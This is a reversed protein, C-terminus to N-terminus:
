RDEELQSRLKIPGELQLVYIHRSRGVPISGLVQRGLDEPNKQFPWRKKRVLLIQNPNGSLYESLDQLEKIAIVRRGTYFSFSGIESEGFRYATPTEDPDILSAVKLMGSRHSGVAEAAPVYLIAIQIILFCPAAWFAPLGLGGPRDLLRKILLFGAVAVLSGTILIFWPSPSDVYELLDAVMMVPVALAAMLVWGLCWIRSGRLQERRGLYAALLIAAPPLLPYAYIERKNAAISLLVLGVGAWCLALIEMPSIEKKWHRLRGATQALLWPSWPLTILFFGPIYFLPGEAHHTHTSGLFRGFNQDFLWYRFSEMDDHLALPVLWISLVAAFAILGAIHLPHFIQRWGHVWLLFMLMGPFILAIGIVGKSLFAGAAFVWVLILHVNQERERYEVFAWWALAVFAVLATDVLIFHSAQLFGAMTALAAASALAIRMGGLVFGIRACALLALLGFFASTMRITRAPEGRFLKLFAVATVYYLPPKQLFPQGNLTPVVLNGSDAMEMVIAGVRHEHPNWLYHDYILFGSVAIISLVVIVFAIKRERGQKDNFIM